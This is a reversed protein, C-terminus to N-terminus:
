YKNKKMRYKQYWFNRQETYESYSIEFTNMITIIKGVKLDPYITTEYRYKKRKSQQESVNYIDKM